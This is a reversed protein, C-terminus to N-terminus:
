YKNKQINTQTFVVVSVREGKRFLSTKSICGKGMDPNYTSVLSIEPRLRSFNSCLIKKRFQSKLNSHIGTQLQTYSEENALSTNFSTGQRCKWRCQLHTISNLGYKKVKACQCSWASLLCSKVSSAILKMQKFLM